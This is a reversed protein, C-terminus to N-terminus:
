ATYRSRAAIGRQFTAVLEIALYVAVSAEDEGIPEREADTGHRDRHSRWLVEARDAVAAVSDRDLVVEWKEPKARLAAIVTGLTAGDHDNPSVVPKAAAEVAKVAEGMAKSRDGQPSTAETWAVDLHDHAPGSSLRDIAEPLPGGVRGALHHEDDDDRAIRVEWRSGPTDLIWALTAADEYSAYGRLFFDIARLSFDGDSQARALCDEAARHGGSDTWNFPRDLALAGELAKLRGVHPGSGPPDSILVFEEIWDALSQRLHAPITPSAAAPGEPMAM